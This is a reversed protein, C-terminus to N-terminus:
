LLNFKYLIGEQNFHNITKIKKGGLQDSIALGAVNDPRVVGFLSAIGAARCRKFVFDILRRGHGLKTYKAGLFIVLEVEDQYENLVQLGFQGILNGNKWLGHIGFGYKKYHSMRFQFLGIFYEETQLIREWTFNTDGTGLQIFEQSDSNTFERGTVGDFAWGTAPLVHKAAEINPNMISETFFCPLGTGEFEVKNIKSFSNLSMFPTAKIDDINKPWKKSAAVGNWAYTSGPGALAFQGPKPHITGRIADPFFSFILNTWKLMLNVSAYEFAANIARANIEHWVEEYETQVEDINLRLIKWCVDDPITHLSSRSELNWKMGSVLIDFFRTIDTDRSKVLSQLVERIFHSIEWALMKESSRDILDKLSLFSIAGQLNLRNRYSILRSKYSKVVDESVGFIKQYLEGDSLVVIDVGYPHVQYITQTLNYLRIMFSIEAMDPMGGDFPVRFRNQDKFPFGPLVFLLRSKEKITPIIKEVFEEKCNNSSNSKSGIKPGCLLDYISLAIDRPSDENPLNINIRGSWESSKLFNDFYHDSLQLINDIKPPWRIPLQPNSLQEDDSFETKIFKKFSEAIWEASPMESSLVFPSMTYKLPFHTMGAYVSYQPVRQRSLSFPGDFRNWYREIKTEPSNHGHPELFSFERSKKGREM